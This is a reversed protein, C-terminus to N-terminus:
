KRIESDARLVKNLTKILTEATFPKRLFEEVTLEGTLSNDTEVNGSMAIIKLSPDMNKLARITAPGDMFPMMMDTIVIKIDGIHKALLPVAETGDHATVVKYNFTELTIKTIDRLAVEDDVVLVLEGHGCPIEEKKLNLGDFDSSQLAPLYVLFKTGQGVESEVDIFGKHSRVIGLVTSLGLGTGKGVEKTTFFPEFIKDRVDNPIGTGTDSVTLLVYFGAQALPSPQIFQQDLQINETKITLTGGKPMADRANICLNLLIQHLQTADGCVSWLSKRLDTKIQISKPFTENAINAMEGILHNIQVIGHEGYIGRAFTLVQKVIDAGRRTSTELMDIFKQDEENPLKQRLLNTALLMPGLVNNLDHAIGGALTGISEMRQARLFQSELEKQKTIDTNVVLVSKPQGKEDYMLTWRALCIIEEGSKTVQKLEGSWIGNKMLQTIADNFQSTDKYLLETIKKGIAEDSQYGYILTAGKNWFLIHHNLDRVLIADRAVDLLAAQELVKAESKKRETVDILSAISLKMNPILDISMFVDRVDNQKNKFRSEYNKPVSGPDIRRKTHYEMMKPLDEDVIFNTWKMRGEIEPKSYGSIKEFINNILSITSDEEILFMATGSSDFITQYKAESLKVIKELERRETIDIKVGAIFREKEGIKLPFKITIFERMSGDAVPLTEVVELPKKNAWVIKDNTQQVEAIEHSWIDFDTKGQVEQELKGFVNQWMKNVFLYRGDTDKIFVVTPTNDMFAQFREETERLAEQAYKRERHVVSERLERQVAPVLRKLNSKVIYDNAGKKMAEVAKDEGLTGSLFIYPTESKTEIWLDLADLGNWGDPLNYDSLIIDWKESALANQFPEKQDVRVIEPEFGGRRLEDEIIIADDESDELHLIRIPTKM